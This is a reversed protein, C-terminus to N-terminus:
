TLRVRALLARHDSGPVSLTRVERATADALLIHDIGIIPGWRRDNPFTPLLGAGAQDIAAAFRGHLLARYAAHDRTANFDAGVIAPGERADLIERIERMEVLWDAFNMPPPIPHFAFLAIPGRGPHDMIASVQNLIFGDYKRTDRLPYRSYIGTGGGGDATPELYSYPLQEGLEAKALRDVAATTLENVTLVDVRNDRVARVVADADAQGFLLNSQLVVVEPGDAARGEPVFAPVLTWLVVGVLVGAVGASRWGRLILFIVLGVVAGVMLYSAGSAVLVLWRSRWAGFHLVVGAVGAALACWGVGLGVRELWGRM